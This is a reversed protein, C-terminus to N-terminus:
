PMTHSVQERRLGVDSESVCPISGLRIFRKEPHQVVRLAAMVENGATIARRLKWRTSALVVWDDMYRVYCCGLAAKRDDLPKLYLAGMLPALPCGLSIGKQIATYNKGDRPVAHSRNVEDGSFSYLTGSMHRDCKCPTFM